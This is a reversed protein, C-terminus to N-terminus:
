PTIVAIFNLANNDSISLDSGDIISDGNLDTPLYAGSIFKFADNDMLAIDSADIIGDQNVDGSYICYKTGKLIMNNGYAQSSSSTFSYVPIPTLEDTIKNLVEGRYKSWTEICNFHKIVIYYRSSPTNFSFYFTGTFNVSDIVALASDIVNFPAGDDRLYAKVIDKRNLRNFSTNLLGEMSLTLKVIIRPPVFASSPDVTHTISTTIETYDSGVYAFLKSAFSVIPPNRWSLNLFEHGAFSKASTELRVRAIKTGPFGNGTMIYGNGAGPTINMLLKLVTAPPNVTTGISPNRPQMAVPLDSGIISYTLVGGNAILPNFSFFYQGSAYEFQTPPNTHQVYIDFEVQNVFSNVSFNKVTLAYTPNQSYATRSLLIIIISSLIYIYNKM